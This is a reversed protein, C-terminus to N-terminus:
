AVQIHVLSSVSAPFRVGAVKLPTAVSTRLMAMQIHVLSSVGSLFRVGAVELAAFKSTGGRSIQYRAIARM